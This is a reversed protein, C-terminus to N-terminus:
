QFTACIPFCWNILTYKIEIQMIFSNRAWHWHWVSIVIVVVLWHGSYWLPFRMRRSKNPTAFIRGALLCCHHLLLSESASIHSGSQNRKPFPEGLFWPLGVLCWDQTAHAYPCKKWTQSRSILRSTWHQPSDGLCFWSHLFIVVPSKSNNHIRSSWSSQESHVMQNNLMAM